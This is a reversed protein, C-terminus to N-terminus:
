FPPEGLALRLNGACDSVRRFKDADTSPDALSYALAILAECAAKLQDFQERTMQVVNPPPVLVPAAELATVRAQLDNILDDVRSLASFTYDQVTNLDQALSVGRAKHMLEKDM